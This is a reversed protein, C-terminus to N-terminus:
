LINGKAIGAIGIKEFRLLRNATTFETVKKALEQRAEMWKLRERPHVMYKSADLENSLVLEELLNNYRAIGKSVDVVGHIMLRYDRDLSNSDERIAVGVKRIKQDALINCFESIQNMSRINVYSHDHIIHYILCNGDITALQITATQNSLGKSFSPKTETDFGLVFSKSQTPIHDKIWRAVSHRNNTYCINLSRLSQQSLRLKFSHTFFSM